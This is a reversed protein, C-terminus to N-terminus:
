GDDQVKRVQEPHLAWITGDPGLVSVIGYSWEDTTLTGGTDVVIGFGPYDMMWPKFKVLDGVRHTMPEAAAAM